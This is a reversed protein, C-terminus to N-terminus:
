ERLGTDILGFIEEVVRQLEYDKVTEAVAPGRALRGGAVVLEGLEEPTAGGSLFGNVGAQVASRLEGV